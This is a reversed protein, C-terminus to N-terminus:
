KTHAAPRIFHGPWDEPPGNSILHRVKQIARAQERFRADDDKAADDLTDIDDLLMWLQYAKERWLRAEESTIM